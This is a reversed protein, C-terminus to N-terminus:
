PLRDAEALWSWQRFRLCRRDRRISRGRVCRGERPRSAGTRGRRRVRAGFDGPYRTREGATRRSARRPSLERAAGFGRDGHDERSPPEGPRLRLTVACGAGRNGPERRTGRRGACCVVCPPAHRRETTEEHVRAISPASAWEVGQRARGWRAKRGTFRPVAPERRALKRTLRSRQLLPTNLWSRRGPRSYVRGKRPNRFTRTVSDIGPTTAAPPAARKTTVSRLAERTRVSQTAGRTTSM